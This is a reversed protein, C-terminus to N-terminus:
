FNPKNFRNFVLRSNQDIVLYWVGGDAVVELVYCKMVAPDGNERPIEHLRDDIKVIQFSPAPFTMPPTIGPLNKVANTSKHLHDFEGPRELVSCGAIM